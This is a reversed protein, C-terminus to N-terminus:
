QLAAYTECIREKWQQYRKLYWHDVKLDAVLVRSHAQGTRRIFDSFEIFRHPFEVVTYPGGDPTVENYTVINDRNLRKNRAVYIAPRGTDEDFLSLQASAQAQSAGAQSQADIYARKDSGGILYLNRPITHPDRAGITAFRREREKAYKKRTAPTTPVEVPSFALPLPRTQVTTNDLILDIDFKRRKWRSRTDFDFLIMFDEKTDIQPLQQFILQHETQNLYNRICNYSLDYRNQTRLCENIVILTHPDIEQLLRYFTVYMIVDSYKIQDTGPIPLPFADASIVVVKRIDHESRYREIQIKKDPDDLGIFIM